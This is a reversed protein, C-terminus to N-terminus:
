SNLWFADLLAPLYSWFSWSMDSMCSRDNIDTMGSLGSMRGYVAAAGYAETFGFWRARHTGIAASKPVAFLLRAM